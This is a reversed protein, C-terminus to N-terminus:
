TSVATPSAQKEWASLWTTLEEETYRIANGEPSGTPVPIGRKPSYGRMYKRATPATWPLIKKECAEMLSYRPSATPPEPPNPACLRPHNQELLPEMGALIQCLSSSPAGAALAQAALEAVTSGAARLSAVRHNRVEVAVVLDKLLQTWNMGPVVGAGSAPSPCAGREESGIVDLEQGNSM